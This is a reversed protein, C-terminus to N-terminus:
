YGIVDWGGEDSTWFLSGQHYTTLDDSTDIVNGFGDDQLKEYISIRYTSIQIAVGAVYCPTGLYAM